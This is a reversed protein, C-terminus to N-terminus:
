LKKFTKKNCCYVYEDEYKNNFWLQKKFVGEIKYGNKKLVKRSSINSSHVGALCKNLNLKKLGFHTVINVSLTGFGKGWVKKEGIFYSVYAYKNDFNIPGIKINGIHNDLNLENIFVGFLYSDNSKRKEKIFNTISLKSIKTFRTELYSNINKDNLWNLYKKSYDKTNLTKLVLNKKKLIIDKM